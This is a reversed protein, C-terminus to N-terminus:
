KLGVMKKIITTITDLMADANVKGCDCPMNEDDLSECWEEHDYKEPMEGLLENCIAQRLSSEAEKLIEEKPRFNGDIVYVRELIDTVESM